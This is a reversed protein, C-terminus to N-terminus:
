KVMWDTYFSTFTGMRAFADNVPKLKEEAKLGLETSGGEPKYYKDREAETPFVVMMGYQNAQEGRIGKISFYKVGPYAKECAPIFEKIFFDEVQQMTYGPNLKFSIVHLGILNGKQLPQAQVAMSALAIMVLILLKKM